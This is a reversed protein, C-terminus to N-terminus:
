NGVAMWTVNRTAAAGSTAVYASATFGSVSVASMDMTYNGPSVNPGPTMSVGYCNNPFATAFLITTNTTIAGVGGKLIL